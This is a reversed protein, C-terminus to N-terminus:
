WEPQTFDYALSAVIGRMEHESRAHHAKDLVAQKEPESLAAYAEMAAHNMALEMGFGIPVKYFDM